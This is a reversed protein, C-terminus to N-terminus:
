LILSSIFQSFICNADECEALFRATARVVSTSILLIWALWAKVKGSKKRNITSPSNTGVRCDGFKSLAWRIERIDLSTILQQYTNSMGLITTAAINMVMQIM